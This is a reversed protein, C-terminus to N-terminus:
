AARSVQQAFMMDHYVLVGMEDCADYWANPLFIGGGWVRLTNMGGDVASRVVRRHAEADLRGEMEEMPIMNAGRSWVPAGNVRFRMGLAATGDGSAHAAVWAADTDNGTVLAFYRFGVRRDAVLTGGSGSPVWTANVGYLPQAGVRAPWWLKIATAPVTVELTANSFGAPAAVSASAAGWAGAVSLTGTTSAPAWVHVRTRLTFGAHAGDVLPATPFPGNYFTHPVVAMVAVSNVGVLYVSKWIGKSFTLAQGADYGGGPQYTDSRARM